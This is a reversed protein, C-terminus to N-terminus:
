GVQRCCEVRDLGERGGGSFEDAVVSGRGCREIAQGFKGLVQPAPSGAARGVGLGQGDARARGGQDGAHPDPKRGAGRIGRGGREVEVGHPRRRDLLGAPGIQCSADVPGSALQRAPKPIAGTLCQNETPRKRPKPVM